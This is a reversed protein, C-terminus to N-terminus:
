HNTPFQRGCTILIPIVVKSNDWPNWAIALTTHQLDLKICCVVYRAIYM